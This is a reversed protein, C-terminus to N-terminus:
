ALVGLGGSYIQLWDALGYEACFYAVPMSRLMRLGEDKESVRDFWTAMTLYKTLGSAAAELETQRDGRFVAELEGRARLKLFAEFPSQSSEGAAAVLRALVERGGNWDAALNEVLHTVCSEVTQDEM